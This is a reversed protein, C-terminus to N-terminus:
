IPLAACELLARVLTRRGLEPKFDNDGHTVASAFAAEAAARAQAEDFPQGELLAEAEHARWPRTAVGGLAIRAQRVVDQALDLAVAASALAFEFSSRDRIKLFLSRRVWARAPVRFGVILEDSGLATEVHPTDGPPRHLEQLLLSRRGHRGLLEVSAELAVLAQALDGPYHAICHESVGLVALKRNRGLIAACGSGPSRKNCEAYSPDRFYNCRTRQLVNGALSAMNRLQASAALQLSQALVPYDQVIRPHGAAASMRVLAGLWLGQADVRIQHYEAELANLDILRKPRMVDLKMLDLLTTGGAIFQTAALTAGEAGAAGAAAVAAQASDARLYEFPRM